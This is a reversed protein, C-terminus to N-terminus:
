SVVRELRRLPTGSPTSGYPAFEMPLSYACFAKWTLGAKPTAYTSIWRSRRLPRGSHGNAGNELTMVTLPLGPRPRYINTLDRETAGGPFVTDLTLFLGDFESASGKQSFDRFQSSECSIHNVIVDAMLDVETALARVDDWAGLRHDVEKHDM